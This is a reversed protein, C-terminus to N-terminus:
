HELKEELILNYKEAKILHRFILMLVTMWDDIIVSCLTASKSLIFLYENM